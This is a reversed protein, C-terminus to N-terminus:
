SWVGFWKSIGRGFITPATDSVTDDSDGINLLVPSVMIWDDGQKSIVVYDDSAIAVGTESNVWDTYNTAAKSPFVYVDFADGTVAGESDLLKVSLTGDTQAAEQAKARRISGGSGGGGGVPVRDPKRGLMDRTDHIDRQMKAIQRGASALTPTAGAGEGRWGALVDLDIFDTQILTTRTSFNMSINTVVTGAQEPQGSEVVRVDEVLQGIKVIADIDDIRLTIKNRHNGYWAVAAALVRRLGERDDRLINSGAYETLEGADDIDVVTNDAIYWLEAGPVNIVLQRRYDVANAESIQAYVQVVQDTVMFVTAVLDNWDMGWDTVDYEGPEADGFDDSAMGYAPQTRVEIAMECNKARVSAPTLNYKDVAVYLGDKDKAAVFVPRYELEGSAAYDAGETLPLQPMIFKDTNWYPGVYDEIVGDEDLAPAVIINSVGGRKIIWSFNAPIRYTTYIRGFQEAGRYKDNRIAQEQEPLSSYGEANKAAEKYITEEADEWAKELSADDVSVTFCTKMKEGRVIIDDYFRGGDQVVTVDIRDDNWLSLSTQDDNAPMVASGITIATDLASQVEITVHGYSEKVWWIFGRSRPLLVNIAERLSRGEMNYVGIINELVLVLGTSTSLEFKPGGSGQCHVILYELIDYNSWLAGDSSFVYTLMDSGAFMPGSSRNGSAKIGGGARRNFVPMEALKDVAGSDPAFWGGTIRTDLLTKLDQASLEQDITRIPVNDVDYSLGKLNFQEAPIWGTWITDEFQQDDNETVRVQIYMRQFTEAFLGDILAVGNEWLGKGYRLMFKAQGVGPAVAYTSSIPEIYECYRWSDDWYFKTYVNYYLRPEM